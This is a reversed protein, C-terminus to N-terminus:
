DVEILNDWYRRPMYQRQLEENERGPVSASDFYRRWLHQYLGEEASYQPLGDSDLETLVWEESNYVVALDRGRDHLIWNQDRMRSSFHPALLGVINYDPEIPAYYGGREMERFRVLGLMRHRERGVKRALQHIEFVPDQDLKDDLSSGSRFGLRLYELLRIEIGSKESLYCYKVNRAAGSSIEDKIGSHVEGARDRDTVIERVESALPRLGKERSVIEEPDDGTKLARYFSCLLGEFSGDYLYVIM